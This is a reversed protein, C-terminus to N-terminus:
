KIKKLKNRKIKEKKREKQYTLYQEKYQNYSERDLIEELSKDIM